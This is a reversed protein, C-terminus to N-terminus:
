FVDASFVFIKAKNDKWATPPLGAKTCTHALFEERNWGYEAAVQPLLLGSYNGQVIMLGHTGVQIERIDDIERMPTLVSLEIDLESLENKQLPPFRPDQFAAAIAMDQITQYLPKVAHIYGICGRLQGKSHLSVFAGRKEELTRTPAEVAPQPKGTTRSEIVSRAINHLYKKEQDTLGLDVGVQTQRTM